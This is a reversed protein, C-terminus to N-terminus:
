TETIKIFHNDFKLRATIEWAHSFFTQMSIYLQYSGFLFVYGESHTL